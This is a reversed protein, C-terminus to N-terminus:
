GQYGHYVTQETVEEFGHPPRHLSWLEFYFLRESKSRKGNISFFRYDKRMHKRFVAFFPDYINKKSFIHLDLGNHAKELFIVIHGDNLLDVLEGVQERLGNEDTIPKLPERTETTGKALAIISMGASAGDILAFLNDSSYGDNRLFLAANMTEGVSIVAEKYRPLHNLGFHQNELDTASIYFRSYTQQPKLFDDLSTTAATSPKAGPNSLQELVMDHEFILKFIIM